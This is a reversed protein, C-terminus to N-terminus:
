EAVPIAIGNIPACQLDWSWFFAIAAAKTKEFSSQRITMRAEGYSSPRRYREAICSLAQDNGQGIIESDIVVGNSFSLVELEYREKLM